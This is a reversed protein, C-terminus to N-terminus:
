TSLLIFMTLFMKLNISDGHRQKLVHKLCKTEDGKRIRERQMEWSALSSSGEARWARVQHWAQCIELWRRKDIFHLRSSCSSWILDHLWSGPEVKPPEWEWEPNPRHRPSVSHMEDIKRFLSKRRFNPIEIMCRISARSRLWMSNMTSQKQKEAISM